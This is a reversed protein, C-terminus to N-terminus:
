YCAKLLLLHYSKKMEQFTFSVLLKTQQFLSGTQVLTLMYDTQLEGCYFYEEHVLRYHIM